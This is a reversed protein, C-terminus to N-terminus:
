NISEPAKSKKSRTRIYGIIAPLISIFIIVFIVISFNNKVVPLNGFFYGGFVFLGVWAIGATINYFHFRWQTMFGIGAVFPAFTRIIPIFRAIVLTVGGYKEYFKHTRELHEKKIFRIKEKKLIGPGVFYGVWYNVTNGAIAAISLIAFLLLPDLAGTASLAGAAFLLSDGPLFPAVVLGTESFIITFLILYTWVGYQQIIGGLHRDLHLFFDIINAFIGM